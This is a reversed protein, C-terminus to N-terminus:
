ILNRQCSTRRGKRHPWAGTHVHRKQMQYAVSETSQMRAISTSRLMTMQRLGLPRPTCLWGYPLAICRRALSLAASLREARAGLTVTPRHHLRLLGRFLSHNLPADHHSASKVRALCLSSTGAM